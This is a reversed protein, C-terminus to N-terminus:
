HFRLPGRLTRTLPLLPDIKPPGWVMTGKNATVLVNRCGKWNGAGFTPGCPSTVRAIGGTRAEGRALPTELTDLHIELMSLTPKRAAHLWKLLEVNGGSECDRVFSCDCWCKQEDCHDCMRNPTKVCQGTRQQNRGLRGKLNRSPCETEANALLRVADGNDEAVMDLEALGASPSDSACDSALGKMQRVSAVDRPSHGIATAVAVIATQILFCSSQLKMMM